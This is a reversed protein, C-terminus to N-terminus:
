EEEAPADDLTERETNWYTNVKRLPIKLTAAIQLSTKGQERLEAVREALDRPAESEDDTDPTVQECTKSTHGKKGCVRCSYM